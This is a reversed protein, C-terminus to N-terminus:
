AADAGGIGLLEGEEGATVLALCEGTPPRRLEARRVVRRMAAEARDVHRRGPEVGDAAREPLEAFRVPLARAIEQHEANRLIVAAIRDLDAQPLQLVAWGAV